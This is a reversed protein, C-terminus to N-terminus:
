ENILRYEIAKRLLLTNNKVDFKQFINARHHDVTRKSLSLKTAIEQSTLGDATLQLIEKERLTLQPKLSPTKFISHLMEEKLSPEVFVNGNYVKNIANVLLDQDTRSKLLYGKCGLQMMDQLHYSSELATLVIIAIDPYEKLIIRTLEDGNTDPLQIDLLLIDPQSTKLAQLLAKGTSYTGIVEIDEYARLSNQLGNIVM